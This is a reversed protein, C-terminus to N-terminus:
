TWYVFLWSFIKNLMVAWLLSLFCEIFSRLGHVFCSVISKKVYKFFKRKEQHRGCESNSPSKSLKRNCTFRFIHLHMYSNYNGTIYVVNIKEKFFFVKQSKIRQIEDQLRKAAEDSKQKQRLLQAQADQKKKLEAVQFTSCPILTSLQLQFVHLEFYVQAELINLKQLYEEKLKQASDGPASSINSLNHRLEEIEKQWTVVISISETGLGKFLLLIYANYLLFGGAFNEERTGVRASEEWLTAQSSIYWCWYFAEDWGEFSLLFWLLQYVSTGIWFPLVNVM